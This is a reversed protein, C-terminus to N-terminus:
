ALPLPRRAMTSAPPQGAKAQGDKSATHRRAGGAGGNEDVDATEMARKKMSRGIKAQTKASNMQRPPKIAM